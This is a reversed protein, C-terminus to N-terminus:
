APEQVLDTSPNFPMSFEACSKRSTTRLGNPIALPARKSNMACSNPTPKPIPTVATSPSTPFAMARTLEALDDALSRYLVEYLAPDTHGKGAELEALELRKERVELPERTM